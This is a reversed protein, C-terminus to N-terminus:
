SLSSAGPSARAAHAPPVPVPPLASPSPGALSCPSSHPLTGVFLHPVTTTQCSLSSCPLGLRGGPVTCPKSTAMLHLFLELPLDQTRPLHYTIAVPLVAQTFPESPPRKPAPDPSKLTGATEPTFPATTSAQTSQCESPSKLPWAPFLHSPKMTRTEPLTPIQTKSASPRPMPPCWEQSSLWSQTWVAPGCTMRCNQPEVEQRKQQLTGHGCCQYSGREPRGIEAAAKPPVTPPIWSGRGWHNWHPLGAREQLAQPSGM